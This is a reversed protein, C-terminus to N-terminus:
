RSPTGAGDNIFDAPLKAFDAQVSVLLRNSANIFRQFAPQEVFYGVLESPDVDDAAENGFDIQTLIDMM